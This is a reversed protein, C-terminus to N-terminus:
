WTAAMAELRAVRSPAFYHSLAEQLPGQLSHGCGELDLNISRHRVIYVNHTGISLISINNKFVLTIYNHFYMSLNTSGNWSPLSVDSSSAKATGYATGRESKPYVM